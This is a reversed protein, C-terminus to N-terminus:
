NEEGQAARWCDIAVGDSSTALACEVGVTPSVLKVSTAEMNIWRVGLMVSLIGVGVVAVAVAALLVEKM